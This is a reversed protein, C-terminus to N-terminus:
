RGETRMDIIQQSLPKGKVKIPKFPSIPKPNFVVDEIKLDGTEILAKILRERETEKKTTIPVVLRM